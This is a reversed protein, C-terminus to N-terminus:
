PKLKRARVSRVHRADVGLRRALAESSGKGQDAARIRAAKVDPDTSPPRGTRQKAMRHATEVQVAVAGLLQLAEVVMPLGGWAEPATQAAHTRELARVLNTAAAWTEVTQPPLGECREVLKGALDAVNAAAHRTHEQLQQAGENRIAAIIDRSQALMKLTGEGRAARTRKDAATM